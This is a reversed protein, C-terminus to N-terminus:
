KDKRKNLKVIKGVTAGLLDLPPTTGHKEVQEKVFATLTGAHVGKKEAYALKTKALAKRLKEAERESGRPLDVTFTRKVLDGHGESELWGFGRERREEPWGAAINASYYPRLDADYAPLNGEAVLGLHDIGVAEFMEPLNKTTLGSLEGSAAALRDSLDAILADLDRARRMVGRIKELRDESPATRSKAAKAASSLGPPPSKM